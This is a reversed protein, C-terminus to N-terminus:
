LSFVCWRTERLLRSTYHYWHSILVPGKWDENNEKYFFLACSLKGKILAIRSRLAAREVSHIPKDGTGISQHRATSKSHLKASNRQLPAAAQAQGRSARGCPIRVMIARIANQLFKINMTNLIYYLDAICIQWNMCVCHAMEWIVLFFVNESNKEHNKKRRERERENKEKREREGEAEAGWWLLCLWLFLILCDHCMWLVCWLHFWFFDWPLLRWSIWSSISVLFFVPPM